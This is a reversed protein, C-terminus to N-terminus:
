VIAESDSVSLFFGHVYCKAISCVTVNRSIWAGPEDSSRLKRFAANPISM